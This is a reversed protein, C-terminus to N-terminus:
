FGSSHIFDTRLHFEDKVYKLLPDIFHLCLRLNEPADQELAATFSRMAQYVIWIILMYVIAYITTRTRRGSKRGFHANITAGALKWAFIVLHVWLWPAMHRPSVFLAAYLLLTWINAQIFAGAIIFRRVIQPNNTNGDVKKTFFSRTFLILSHIAGYLSFILIFWYYIPYHSIDANLFKGFSRRLRRWERSDLFSFFETKDRCADAILDYSNGLYCLHYKFSLLKFM